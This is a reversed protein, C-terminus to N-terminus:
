SNQLTHLRGLGPILGTDGANAPPKKDETGCLFDLFALSKQTNSQYGAAKSFENILEPLKRTPGKPNKVYLIMDDATDTMSRKWNPNKTNRKGRQKCHSPSGFSHQIITALTSM